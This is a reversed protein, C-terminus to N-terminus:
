RKRQRKSVVPSDGDSQEEDNTDSDVTTTTTNDHEDNSRTQALVEQLGKIRFDRAAGQGMFKTLDVQTKNSLQIVSKGFQEIEYVVKPIVRTERLVKNKLLDANVSKKKTQTSQTKQKNVGEIFIIYDYVVSSLQKGALKVVMEFRAGQFVLNVKSSRTTFYKTLANLSNYLHAVTKLLTDSLTGPLVKINCTTGLITIISCLQCCVGREKSKLYEKRREPNDEGPYTIMGFESKLRLIIWDLDDLMIKLSSCLLPIVTPANYENIIMLEEFTEEEDNVTGLLASLRRVVNEFLTTTNKYKIQVNFLLTILATVVQKNSTSNKNMYNKLWDLLQINVSNCSPPIFSALLTLTNVIILPLKKIEIDSSSELEELEFLKQYTEVLGQLLNSLDDDKSKDVLTSLLLPLKKKFHHGIVKLILYFCEMALTASMSDFDLFSDLRVICREYLIVAIETLFNFCLKKYRDEETRLSKLNKVLHITAELMHQHIERKTKIINAEAQTTWNVETHHLLSLVKTVTEFNLITNPKKFSHKTGSEKLTTDRSENAQKKKDGKKPKSLNKSFDIVRTYGQFLSNIQNANRESTLGWSCIKYGILGEYVYLAETLVCLKHKSEPVIDLLDTGDDLELHMLECSSMRNCLSEMVDKLKIVTSNNDNDDQVKTLILGITYILKGLPEQLKVEVDKTATIKSFQLPPIIEKDSVYISNFHWWLMGLVPIALESNVSVARYLGDYLQSRVEVQQIFCRRLIGLVELCLAENSFASTAARGSCCLSAQTLLSHGSSISNSSSSSQSLVTLNSIKLEKILKLFSSVAMQRTATTRSYLAKRLLLILHDRITPSIKTLPLIADFLHSATPGPVQVLFELLEIVCSQNELMILSKKESLIHIIDIYHAVNHGTVIYNNLSSLISSAIQRKKKIVKLLIMKGLEWQRECVLDGERGLMPGVSLLVYALQVLGQVVLYREDGSCEIIQRLVHEVKSTSSLMERFWCSDNKKLDEQISRSICARLIEMVKEECTSITSITLLVTFHFPHLIFEPSKVLNKLSNLYDKICESEDSASQYIYFIITSEVEVADQNSADDIADINTNESDSQQIVDMRSYIRTGFYYQLRLFISKSNQYRCLKLMQYVFAPLEQCTLKEMYKGLKNVVQLHEEKTLPMEIFMSALSTIINPAWMLMCLSNILQTKYELGTMDEDNYEVHNCKIIVNLAEPLVDKWCMESITGKQICEICFNCIQILHEPKFKPLEVCLRTLISNSLSTSILGKELEHLLNSVVQFRKKHSENSDTFSQMLYDWVYVFNSSSYKLIILSILKKTDLKQVYEKLENQKRKQGLARIKAEIEDM